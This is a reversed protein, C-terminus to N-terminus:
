TLSFIEKALLELFFGREEVNQVFLIDYFHTKSNADTYSVRMRPEIGPVFPLTFRDTIEATYEAQNVVEKGTLHEIKAWLTVVDSWPGGPQGYSNTGARTQITILRNMAGIATTSGSGKPSLRALPM